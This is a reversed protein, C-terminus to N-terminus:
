AGAAAATRRERERAKAACPFCRISQRSQPYSGCDPCRHWTAPAIAPRQLPVVRQPAQAEVLAAAIRARFALTAVRALRDRIAALQVAVPAPPPGLRELSSLLSAVEGWLTVLDPVPEALRRRRGM